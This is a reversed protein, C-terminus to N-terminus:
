PTATERLRIARAAEAAPVAAAMIAEAVSAQIGLSALHSRGDGASITGETLGIILAVTEAVHTVSPGIRVVGAGLLRHWEEYVGAGESGVILHFVHNRERAEAIVAAMSLDEQPRDGTTNRIEARTVVPHPSQDGLTFLYGKKSRKEWCDTVTHRAVFYHALGYSEPADGGGGELWVRGLDEDMQADSEFQGVQLPGHDCRGDGVAGFLVQPHPAYGREILLGMLRPLRAELETPVHGMSGTVDFFVAVALSEPHADSDRSERTAQHPNMQDHVKRAVRGANVDATYSMTSGSIGVRRSRLAAYSSEGVTESWTGGGM